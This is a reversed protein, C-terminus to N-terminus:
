PLSLVYGIGTITALNLNPIKKRLRLVLARLSSESVIINQWLEAEIRQYEVIQNLQTILLHLLMSEKKTLEIRKGQHSLNSNELNYLYGDGLDLLQSSVSSDIEAQRQSLASVRRKYSQLDEELQLNKRNKRYARILGGCVTLFPSLYNVLSEDYGNERNAIGVVGLLNNDSYFPIGLFAKLPPHGEPLGGSRPDTEPANSIVYKGTKLVSGYLSNLRSFILGNKATEEYLKHTDQSWAINTTAYSQIYPQGEKDYFVEGIFGYESETLKLLDNLLGNFLLFPNVEAIYQPLAQSITELLQRNKDLQEEIPIADFPTM